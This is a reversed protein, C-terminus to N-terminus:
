ANIPRKLVAVIWEGSGRKVAYEPVSVLEWGEGGFRNLYEQLKEANANALSLVKYEWNTM